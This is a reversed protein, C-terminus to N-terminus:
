GALPDDAAHPAPGFRNPGDNGARLGITVIGALIAICGIGLWFLYILGGGAFTWFIYIWLMGLPPAIWIPIAFALQWWGSLGLDHLRKTTVCIIPWFLIAAAALSSPQGLLPLHEAEPGSVRVWVWKFGFFAIALPLVFEFYFEGLAVRGHPSFYFRVWKM